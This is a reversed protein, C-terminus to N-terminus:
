QVSRKEDTLSPNRLVAGGDHAQGPGHRSRGHHEAVPVYDDHERAPLPCSLKIRNSM